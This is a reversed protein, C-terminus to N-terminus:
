PPRFSGTASAVGTRSADVEGLVLLKVIARQGGRGGLIVLDRVVQHAHAALPRTHRGVDVGGNAIADRSPGCTGEM